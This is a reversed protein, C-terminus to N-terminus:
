EQKKSVKACSTRSNWEERMARIDPLDARDKWIGAAAMLENLKKDEEFSELFQELAENILQNEDKGTRLALARLIELQSESIQIPKRPM